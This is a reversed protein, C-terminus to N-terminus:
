LTMGIPFCAKFVEKEIAYAEIEWPQDDYLVNTMTQGEWEAVKVMSQCDGTQMIQIGHDVLQGTIIQKAHTMEHALNIMQKEFDLAVGQVHTAIEIEVQEDDGWCYGGAHGDCKDIFSIDIDAEGQLDFYEIMNLVYQEVSSNKSNEIGFTVMIFKGRKESYRIM